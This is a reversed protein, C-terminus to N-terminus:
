YGPIQIGLRHVNLGDIACPGFSNGGFNVNEARMSGTMPVNYFVSTYSTGDGRDITGVDISVPNNNARDGLKFRGSFTWTSPDAPDGSAYQSLHINNLSLSSPQTNYIFKLSDIIIETQYDMVIGTAGNGRGAFTALNSQLTRYNELRLSGLEQGCFVFNGVTLTRPEMNLYLNLFVSTIGSGDTGVDITNFDEADEPTDLSFYGGNGDDITFNNLEIWSLPDHDTDSFSFSDYSIRLQSNGIVYIIGSQASVQSLEREGVEQMQAHLAAPMYLILATLFLNKFNNRHRVSDLYM